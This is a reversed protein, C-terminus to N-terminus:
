KSTKFTVTKALGSKKMLRKSKKNNVKPLTVKADSSTKGFANKGVSKLSSSEVKITKLNICGYFAKKGISTINSGITVKKLKRNNKFANNDIKTVNYTVGNKEISAPIVVSAQKKTYKKLSVEHDGTIVYNSDSFRIVTGKPASAPEEPTDVKKAETNDQSETQEEAKPEEAPKNVTIECTAFVSPDSVSKATITTKGAKLATVKGGSVSAIAKDSSTWTVNKNTANSPTVTATLTVTGGVDLTAATENLKIGTVKVTPAPVNIIGASVCTNLDSTDWAYIHTIYEGVEYKHYSKRVDYYWRGDAGQVGQHWILDDQGNNVTWTPFEVKTIAVNDTAKCSIRYGYTTLDEIKIDTITPPISEKIPVQIGAGGVGAKGDTAWAYIHTFYTGSENNHDYIPVHLTYRGNSGKSVDYWKIDDQDRYETWTPFQVKSLASDNTVICSIDYGNWKVNEVRVDSVVPTPTDALYVKPSQVYWYADASNITISASSIPIRGSAVSNAPDACYFTGGTYDTLLIAHPKAYDYIVIGEPHEQLLSILANVNSSNNYLKGNSVKIGAYTFNFYLGSGEKWATGRMSSETIAAWNSNGTAMAARRVMMVASALTCTSKTQQKVFVSPQNIDGFNAAHAKEPVLLM